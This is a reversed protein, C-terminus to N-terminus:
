VVNDRLEQSLQLEIWGQWDTTTWGREVVLLLYCEESLVLYLVDAFRQYRAESIIIGTDLLMRAFLELTEARQRKNEKLLAEVEPEASASQLVRFLPATRATVAGGHVALIHAAQKPDTAVRLEEVWPRDKVAIPEADGAITLDLVASLISVKNRFVFYVTQPAVGASAAIDKITALGYGLDLFCSSAARVIKQRTALARTASKSLKVPREM